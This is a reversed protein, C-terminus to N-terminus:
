RSLARRVARAVAQPSFGVMETGRPLAGSVLAALEEESAAASAGELAGSISELAEPPELFFDGSIRVSRLRDGAVELDAAVLKGGPTKYEGHM